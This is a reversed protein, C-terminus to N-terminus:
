INLLTYILALSPLTSYNPPSLKFKKFFLQNFKSIIKHLSLCDLTCYNVSEEKFDWIKDTFLSKYREYKDKSISPFYKFDPVYGKYNINNLSFPFIGKSEEKNLNFSKCLDKLSSPLMLYSDSFTFSYNSEYLKFKCSIIRGKHILPKIVGLQSLNRILFYGDFKSFNHLYIKYGRYKRKSIDTMADQVMALVSNSVDGKNRVIYSDITSPDEIYYHKKIKGDTWCLLYPTLINNYTITELDMTIYKNNLRKNKSSSKVVMPKTKKITTYLAV